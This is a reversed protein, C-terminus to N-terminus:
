VGHSILLLWDLLLSFFVHRCEFTPKRREECLSRVNRLISSLRNDIDGWPERKDEADKTEHADKSGPGNSGDERECEKSTQVVECHEHRKGSGQAGRDKLEQCIPREGLSFLLPPIIKEVSRNKRSCGSDYIKDDTVIGSQSALYETRENSEPDEKFNTPLVM